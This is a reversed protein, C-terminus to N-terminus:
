HSIVFQVSIIDGCSTSHARIALPRLLPGLAASLACARPAGPPSGPSTHTLFTPTTAEPTLESCRPPSSPTSLLHSPDPCCILFFHSIPVLLLSASSFHVVRALRRPQRFQPAVLRCALGWNLKTDSGELAEFLLDLSMVDSKIPWRGSSRTVTLRVPWPGLELANRPVVKNTM